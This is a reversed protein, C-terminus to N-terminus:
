GGKRKLVKVGYKKGEKKTCDVENRFVLEGVRKEKRFLGTVEIRDGNAFARNGAPHYDLLVNISKGKDKLRFLSYANGRSSKRKQLNAVEGQVTADKGNFADGKAILDSVTAQEVAFAAALCAAAMLMFIATRKM